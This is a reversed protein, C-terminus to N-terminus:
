IKRLFFDHKKRLWYADIILFIQFEDEPICHWHFSLSSNPFWSEVGNYMNYLKRAKATTSIREVVALPMTVCSMSDDLYIKQNTDFIPFINDMAIM